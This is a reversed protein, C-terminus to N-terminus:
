KANDVVELYLEFIQKAINPWEFEKVSETAGEEIQSRFDDDKLLKKIATALGEANSPEVLIGTKKDQIMEQLGGVRSAIVATNEEMAELASTAFPEYTSPVIHIKAKSIVKRAEENPVYGLFLVYDSINLEEAYVKMQELLEGTGLIKLSFQKYEGDSVVESFAKLMVDIGKTSCIRGCYTLYDEKECKEDNKCAEVGNYIVRIGTTKYRNELEEKLKGSVAVCADSNRCLFGRLSDEIKNEDASRAHISSVVPINLKRRFFDMIWVPFLDHCHVVDFDYEKLHNAVYELAVINNRTWKYTFYDLESNVLDDNGTFEVVKVGEPAEFVRPQQDVIVECRLVFVSIEVDYLAKLHKVLNYVHVGVGAYFKPYYDPTLMCIKLKRM